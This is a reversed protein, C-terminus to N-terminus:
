RTTRHLHVGTAARAVAVVGILLAIVGPILRLHESDGDHGPLLVPLDNAAKTFYLVAAVIAVAGAVGLVVAVRSTIEIDLDHRLIWQTALIVLGGAVVLCSWGAPFETAWLIGGAVLAIVGSVIQFGDLTRGPERM